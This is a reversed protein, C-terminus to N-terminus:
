PLDFVRAIWDGLKNGVMVYVKIRPCEEIIVIPVIIMSFLLNDAKIIRTAVPELKDM